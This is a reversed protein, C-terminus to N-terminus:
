ETHQATNGGPGREGVLAALVVHRDGFDGVIKRAPPPAVKVLMPTALVKERRALDLNEALNVMELEFPGPLQSECIKILNHIARESNPSHGNIFLRLQYKM